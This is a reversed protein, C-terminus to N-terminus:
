DSLIGYKKAYLSCHRVRHAHTTSLGEFAGDTLRSPVQNCRATSIAANLRPASFNNKSHWADPLDALKALHRSVVVHVPIEM